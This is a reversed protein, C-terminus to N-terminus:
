LKLMYKCDNKEQQLLDQENIDDKCCEEGKDSENENLGDEDFYEIHPEHGHLELEDLSQETLEHNDLEQNNANDNDITLDLRLEEQNVPEIEEVEILTPLTTQGFVIINICAIIFLSYKMLLDIFERCM